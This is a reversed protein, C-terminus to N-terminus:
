SCLYTANVGEKAIANDTSVANSTLMVKRRYCPVNGQFQHEVQKTYDSLFMLPLLMTRVLQVNLARSSVVSVRRMLQLTDTVLM